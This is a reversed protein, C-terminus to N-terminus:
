KGSNLFAVRSMTRAWPPMTPQVAVVAWTSVARGFPLIYTKAEDLCLVDSAQILEGQINAREEWGNLRAHDARTEQWFDGSSMSVDDPFGGRGALGQVLLECFKM